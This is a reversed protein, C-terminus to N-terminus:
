ACKVHTVYSEEGLVICHVITFRAIWGLWGLCVGPDGVWVLLMVAIDTFIFALANLALAMLLQLQVLGALISDRQVLRIPLSPILAVRCLQDEFLLYALALVLILLPISTKGNHLSAM